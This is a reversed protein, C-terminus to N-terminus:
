CSDPWVFVWGPPQGLLVPAHCGAGQQCGALEVVLVWLPSIAHGTGPNNGVCRLMGLWSGSCHWSLSLYGLGSCVAGVQWAGSVKTSSYMAHMLPSVLSSTMQPM